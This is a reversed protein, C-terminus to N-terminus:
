YPNAPSIARVQPAQAPLHLGHSHRVRGHFDADGRQPGVREAMRREQLPILDLYCNMTYVDGAYARSHSYYARTPDLKQAWRVNRAAVM